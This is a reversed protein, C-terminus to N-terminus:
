TRNWSPGQGLAHVSKLLGGEQGGAIRAEVLVFCARM